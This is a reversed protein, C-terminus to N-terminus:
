LSKDLYIINAQKRSEELWTNLIEDTRADILAKRISETSPAPVPTGGPPNAKWATVERKYYNQIDAESASENPRFRLEIFRLTTLQLALHDRLTNESLQYTKLAQNFQEETGFDSRVQQVYNEIKEADPLPYHSLEMEHKVLLQEVLRDAAARRADINRAIPQDNLLATVRLEEDIQLETIVQRGVTIAIREVIEARLVPLVFALAFLRLIL